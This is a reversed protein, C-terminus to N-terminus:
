FPRAKREYMACGMTVDSGSSACSTFQDMLQQATGIQAHAREPTIKTHTLNCADMRTLTIVVHCLIRHSIYLDYTVTKSPSIFKIPLLALTKM